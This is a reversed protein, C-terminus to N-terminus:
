RKIIKIDQQDVELIDTHHKYIEYHDEHLNVSIQPGNFLYSKVREQIKPGGIRDQLTEYAWQGPEFQFFSTDAVFVLDSQRRYSLEVFLVYIGGLKRRLDILETRLDFSGTTDIYHYAQILTNRIRNNLNFEQSDPYITLQPWLKERPSKATDTIYSRAHGRQGFSIISTDSVLVLHFKDYFNVAPENGVNSVVLKGTRTSDMSFDSISSVVLVPKRVYSIQEKLLDIQERTQDLGQCTFYLVILSPILGGFIGAIINVNFLVKSKIALKRLKIICFELLKKVREWYKAM